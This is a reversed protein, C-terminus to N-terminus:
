SEGEVIGTGVADKSGWDAISNNLDTLAHSMSSVLRAAAARVRGVVQHKQEKGGSSM